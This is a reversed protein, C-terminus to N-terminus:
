YSDVIEGKTRELGLVMDGADKSAIFMASSTTGNKHVVYIVYSSVVGERAVVENFSECSKAFKSHSSIKISEGMTM